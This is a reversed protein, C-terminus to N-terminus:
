LYQFVEYNEIQFYEDSSRIPCEYDSKYCGWTKGGKVMFLDISFAPGLGKERYIARKPCKVKSFVSNELNGRKLSFIFSNCTEYCSDVSGFGKLERWALPNYGGIIEHSDKLQLILVTREINKLKKYFTKKDFGDDSARLVLRLKDPILFIDIDNILPDIHSILEM